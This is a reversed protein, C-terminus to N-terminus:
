RPAPAGFCWLTKYTRLLVQGDSIAPSACTTEDAAWNTALLKFKPSAALVFVEGSHNPVILTDNALVISSWSGGSAGRGSLRKEWVKIGDTLQLCVVSGFQTILYVHGSFIVGSGVCDKPLDVQWLRHAPVSGGLGIATVRTGGGSVRHGTAVLVGEGV